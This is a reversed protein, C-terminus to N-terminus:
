KKRSITLGDRVPLLVTELEEHHALIDNYKMIVATDRDRPDLIEVVKGSWLVNDSLLIGDKSLRPLLLDLYNVYNKKDADLFILDFDGELTPIVEMADGVIMKIKGAYESRNFFSVALDELEENRDITILEGSEALGEALCLASYGTFTGLELVRKPRLLHSIMSLIRGQFADSIMRPNPLRLWTTRVLEELLEGQPSSHSTAYEELKSYQNDSFHM